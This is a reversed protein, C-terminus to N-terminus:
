CVTYLNASILVSPSRALDNFINSGLFNSRSMVINWYCDCDSIGNRNLLM